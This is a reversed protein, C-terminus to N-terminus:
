GGANEIFPREDILSLNSVRARFKCIDNVNVWVVKGDGRIKIEIDSSELIDIMTDVMLHAQYEDLDKTM